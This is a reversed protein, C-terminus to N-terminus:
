SRSRIRSVISYGLGSVISVGAGIGAISGPGTVPLAAPKAPAAAQVVPTAPTAPPTILCDKSGAVMAGFIVEAYDREELQIIPESQFLDAQFFCGDGPISASITHTGTSYFSYFYSYMKQQALPGRGPHALYVMLSVPQLSCGEPITFSGTVKDGSISLSGVQKAKCAPDVEASATKNTVGTMVVTSALAVAIAVLSTKIISKM